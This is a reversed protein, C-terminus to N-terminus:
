TASGADATSLSLAVTSNTLGRSMGFIQRRVFVETADSRNPRFVGISLPSECVRNHEGNQEVIGVLTM